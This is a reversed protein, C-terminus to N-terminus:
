EGEKEASRPPELIEPPAAQDLRVIRNGRELRVETGPFRYAAEKAWEGLREAKRKLELREALEMTALLSPPIALILTTLAVPDVGGSRTIHQTGPVKGAPSEQVRRPRHDLQEEFWAALEGAVAEADPGSILFRTEDAM